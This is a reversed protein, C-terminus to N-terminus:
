ELGPGGSTSKGLWLGRKVTSFIQRLCHRLVVNREGESSHIDKKPFIKGQRLTYDALQYVRKFVKVAAGEGGRRAWDILDVINVHTKRIIAKCEKITDPPETIGVAKCLTHWAQIDDVKGFLFRVEEELAAQYREWEREGQKNGKKWRRHQQLRKWSTAPPLSRDYEFSRFSLFFRDLPTTPSPQLPIGDQQANANQDVMSGDPNRHQSQGLADRAAVTDLTRLRIHLPSNQIHAELGSAKVRKGCPCIVKNDLAPVANRIYHAIHQAQASEPTQLQPHNPSDRLHQTVAESDKLRKGCHCLLQTTDNSM